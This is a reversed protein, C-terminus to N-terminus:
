YKSIYDSSYNEQIELILNTIEKEDILFNNNKCKPILYKFNPSSCLEKFIEPNILNQNHLIVILPINNDM